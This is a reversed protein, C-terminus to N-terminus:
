VGSDTLTNKKTDVNMTIQKSMRNTSVIYKSLSYNDHSVTRNMPILSAVSGKALLGDRSVVSGIASQCGAIGM